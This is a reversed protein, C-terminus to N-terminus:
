ATVEDVASTIAPVALATLRHDDAAALPWQALRAKMRGERLPGAGGALLAAPAPARHRRDPM